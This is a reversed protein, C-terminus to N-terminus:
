KEVLRDRGTAKAEYLAHDARALADRLAEGPRWATLGASFSVRMHSREGWAEDRSLLRRLREFGTRAEDPRTDPLMVLFEEGGWRALVDTDRMSAAAHRAFLRLVEDGAAHGHHDNVRKFHDIDVLCLCPLSGSRLARRQEMEALEEMHRRNILGTLDDRTALKHIRALACQLEAKQLKLRMRMASLDGALMSIVPLVVAAFAFHIREVTPDFTQPAHTGMALMVLGLVTIAFLGLARSARPSLTFAAFVLVLAVIMLLMGRVPPNIVYAAAMAVIAFVMQQMTLAPDSFRLNVGSRIALLFGFLGPVLCLILWRALDPDALGIQASWWQGLAALLYVGSAVLTRRLRIRQKCDAGFLWDAAHHPLTLPM